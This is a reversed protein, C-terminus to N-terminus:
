CSYITSRAAHSWIWSYRSVWANNGTEWDAYRDKWEVSVASRLTVVSMRRLRSLPLKEASTRSSWDAAKSTTLWLMSTDRSFDLNPKPSVTKCHIVEYRVVRFLLTTVLDMREASAEQLKPTGWPLMSPGKSKENYVAGINSIQGASIRWWEYASSMWSYTCKLEFCCFRWCRSVQIVFMFSHIFAFPSLNFGELVSSIIIPGFPEILSKCFMVKLKFPEQMVDETLAFFRPTISLLVMVM